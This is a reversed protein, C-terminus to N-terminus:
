QVTIADMYISTAYKKGDTSAFTIWSQVELGSFYTPLTISATTASRAAAALTYYYLDSAPSYVVVVLQDTALAEGEGSNNDWGYAITNTAPSGITPNQVGLLDGKSIQVKNYLIEFDPDVYNVAEKMHYSLARNIRTNEGSNSGYFRRLVPHFPTLFETVKLFRQRQLLQQQTPTRHGKKPLSRMYDKGRWSSGIVTGVKGSFPGLIGKNYTGM